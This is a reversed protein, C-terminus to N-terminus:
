RTEIANRQGYESGDNVPITKLTFVKQVQQAHYRHPLHLIRRAPTILM